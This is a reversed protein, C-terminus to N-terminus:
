KNRKAAKLADEYAHISDVMEQKLMKIEADLEKLEEADTTEKQEKSLDSIEGCYEDVIEYRGYEPSEYVEQAKEAAGEVDDAEQNEYHDVWRKVETYEDYYKWYESNTRRAKANEDGSKLVRSAMLMNRWDFEQEGAATQAMKGLKNVATVYGGFTGEFLHEIKSPNFNLWGRRIDDGGTAENCAKSFDVLWQATKKNAKTWEPDLKNWDNDKYVPRGTWDKNIFYAEVLPKVVSPIVASLGGEGEFLDIPAFKSLQGAIAEMLEQKTYRERGLMVNATLEGLGYIAQMEPGLPICFFTHTFPIKFCLNSRRVYEPLNLYDEDDGGFGGMLVGLLYIAAHYGVAKATHHKYLRAFNTTGQIAANWFIYGSRGAGSLFGAINGLLSQGTKGMMASGAGKKNFNVSVEKADMVSREITRGMQRSTIFAAFRACNEVSRNIEDLKDGVLDWAVAVPIQGAKGKMYKKILKKQKEIDKVVTYGTEGGNMMFQYFMEEMKDNMDLTGSNYKQLLRFLTGPNCKVFNKNFKIAYNPNERVWMTSNAYMADRLFNSLVFEPNRTTYFASMQRNVWGATNDILKGIANTDNNNPNTLGNLAQAVRPNGNVTIVYDKGGMKVHVQHENMNEKLVVYPIDVADKGKKYHLPDNKALQEMQEEFQETKQLVEDASDNDDIKATVAEWQGTIDNFKLWLKNVSVADSPHNMAFKLFKQKMMNRNGQVIASDAMNAITALPDDAVTKRGKAKKLAPSFGGSSDHTLYAYVEDSTTADFGRLPIYYDYMGDIEQYLSRSLLGSEYTKKLTAKTCTNTRAWLEDTNYKKEFADVLAQADNEAVALDDIEMLGTIGGYDRMRNKEYQAQEFDAMRQKVDDLDDIAKQDLPDANVAAEAKSLEEGFKERAKQQAARRAMVENRELGHKAMMYRTVEERSSGQKVLDHVANLLPKFLMKGYLEQEAHNKSSLANEAMYANEFDAIVGGTAKVIMEMLRRLSLMSDQVAERFQYTSSEILRDYRDRVIAKDREDMASGDRYLLGDGKPAAKAKGAAEDEAAKEYNGVGLEQKMLESRAAKVIGHEDSLNEYSQWLIYRLDNDSLSGNLKVGAKRLMDLFLDKIKQLWNRKGEFDTDEALGALYEETAVRFDWGHRKAMEAIQRRIGEDANRYVNELFKNFDEGFMKRLGYHAVGEHLVTKVVDATGSHNPLVIVIEGTKPDFWGKANAKKGTLGDLSDMVKVKLGLKKAIREVKKTAASMWKRMPTGDESQLPKAYGAEERREKFKEKAYQQADMGQSEMEAKRKAYMEKYAEIDANQGNEHIAALLNKDDFNIDRSVYGDLEMVKDSEDRAEAMREFPFEDAMKRLGEEDLGMEKLAAEDVVKGSRRPLWTGGAAENLQRAEADTLARKINYAGCIIMAPVDPNANTRYKYYGNYPIYPLGAQDHEYKGNSNFGYSWADLQYDVDASYEVEFFVINDQMVSRAAGKEAGEPTVAFQSANPYDALHKGPRWALPSSKTRKGEKDISNNQVKIRGTTKTTVLSGDANRALVGTDANLNTLPPAGVGADNIMKPQLSIRGTKADRMVCFAAYATKTKGTMPAERLSFRLDPDDGENEDTDRFLLGDGEDLNEDNEKATEFDEVVKAASLGDTLNSLGGVEESQESPLILIQDGERIAQEKILELNDDNVFHWHVIEVNDKNPSVELLVTRNKNEEDVTNVLVWNYPRKTKQNQGYLNANYLASKFIVRSQEPTVDNHRLRNREFINKKIVVPRGETGLANAVNVPIQPLEVNRTPNTFDEETLDDISTIKELKLTGDANLPNGQKDTNREHMMEASMEFGDVNRLAEVMKTYKKREAEDYLARVPMRGFQEATLKGLDKGTWKEFASKVGQWMERLWDMAKELWKKDTVGTVRSIIKENEAGTFRSICESFIKRDTAEEGLAELDRRVEEWMPSSKWLEMGRAYLKPNFTELVKMWIHTHEHMPTNANFVDENMVIRDGIAFGYVMGGGDRLMQARGTETEEDLRKDFDASPLVSVNNKGYINNLLSIISDREEQEISTYKTAANIEKMANEDLAVSTAMDSQATEEALHRGLIEKWNEPLKAKVAPQTVAKGDEDYMRFDTLVKYYNEHGTVGEYDFMPTMGNARCYDLYAQAAKRADGGNKRVLSNFQLVSDVIHLGISDDHLDRIVNGNKDLTHYGDDMKTAKDYGTLSKMIPSAGTAHYPLIMHIDPNGLAWKIFSVSPAVVVNGVHGRFARNHANEMATEVPFSEVSWAPVLEMNDKEYRADNEALAGRPVFGANDQLWKDYEKETLGLTHRHAESGRWVDVILSQNMKAGTRGFMEPMFPRKTYLQMPAHAGQLLLFQTYYDFFMTARADEYSFMRVGGRERMELQSYLKLYIDRPIGDLSFPTTDLLQKGRYQGSSLYEVIGTNGFKDYFATFESPSMFWEYNMNGRLMDSGLMLTAIKKISDAKIGEGTKTTYNKVRELGKGEALEKLVSKQEATLETPEGMLKDELGAAERVANWIQEDRKSQKLIKRKAEVYCMVCPTLYGHNKLIKKVAEIQTVGLHGGKGAAVLADIVANTAEKKICNFSYDVSIYEGTDRIFRRNSAESNQALAFRPYQEMYAQMGDAVADAQAIMADAEEPELGADNVLADRMKEKDGKKWTEYNLEVEGDRRVVAPKGDVDFLTKGNLSEDADTKEESRSEGGEGFLFIQDKRSVDETESALSARREEPTMGMRKQVNRSEVEGSLSLYQDYASPKKGEEVGRDYLEMFDKADYKKTARLSKLIRSYDEGLSSVFDRQEDTTGDLIGFLTEEDAKGFKERVLKDFQVFRRDEESPDHFMEPSGGHEFGEIYQIAHQIEHVFIEDYPLSSNENVYITNTEDSYSGGVSADKNVFVVKVQKLEPYSKFLEDAHVYDALVKEDRSNYVDAVDQAKSSLEDLRKMDAEPLTEGAFVREWLADYEKSWPQRAITRELDADGKEVYEIDPIEYRWKKDAGREWGTAMKIAKADTGAEEMERAVALNDLRTTVEEAHDAASTGKEGVFQMRVKGDTKGFKRPDVGDLLDKMVRDAVEEANTYHIHLFDCVGKWFKQLAQRVNNLASVAEAKEFVSGEGEAIKRAEERLREAGRRGSYQAIVEDAIEDDTKLEPYLKKVENWVSTGKMLAVVNKWEKPNGAKLATAWLHAYEHVLTESTAIRPDYYIKGGVTFGYAEGDKTRFYRVKQEKVEGTETDTEVDPYSYTGGIDRTHLKVDADIVRINGAADRVINSGQLDSVVIEGNSFLTKEENSPKFGLKEMYEVREDVPLPTSNAFDVFPQRLFKVFKGDVEGYGLIEYRSNPFVHNFLAVADVDPRHKKLHDKGKSVKIVHNGDKELYVTSDKGKGISTEDVDFDTVSTHWNGTAIAWAKLLERKKEEIRRKGEPGVRGNKPVASECIRSFLADVASTREGKRMGRGVESPLRKSLPRYYENYPTVNDIYDNILQLTVDDFEGSLVKEYLEKRQEAVKRLREKRAMREQEETNGSVMANAGDVDHWMRNRREAEESHHSAASLKAVGNAEDLVSQGEESGIVDLGSAQMAEDLADRLVQEEHTVPVVGTSKQERVKENDADKESSKESKEQKTGSTKTVKGDSSTDLASINETDAPHQKEAHSITTSGDVSLNKESANSGQTPLLDPVGDQHEALHWDSSNPLLAKRIYFVNSELLKKEVANKNMYHSSISVELGDQKVTISAYFKAKEGKRNFTKVFVYSSAREPKGDKSTSKEEIIIDPNKLTPGVMGFENARNKDFFKTVQHDGMKVRGIPTDTSNNEDFTEAWSEATLPKESADEASSEMRSLLGKAQEKNLRIGKRRTEEDVGESQLLNTGATDTGEATETSGQSGSGATGTQENGTGRKADTAKRKDQKEETGYNLLSKVENIIEEKTPVKGTFMDMQGSAAEKARGNYTTLTKKPLTTRNDNLVDALMLVAANRYDAVTEGEEFPFLNLQRAYGSVREGAKIGGNKRAQYVLDIAAALEEELSFGNELAVNNSIEALATIISQRMSKTETAMRVADPNKEFAKGILLNEITEKGAASLVDGDWMEALQVGSIAGCKQLDSIVSATAEKDAYFDGLTDFQNITRTTRGFTADDVVKGLKVAQETKSQGKMEQQNFKAFTEATYPMAADPVFVVRPHEMGEVQEKTFGFQAPYEKLYDIYAGDTNQAAALEGAMTRGNGSLVVGDGSVIVPNQVARSDYQNSHERTIRQADADREYDRDNVSGGNEDVPFGESKAFGKNVDHSATAAGSEVLVYHGSIKEGNAITIENRAGDVKKASEWKDKIGPAVNNVGLAAQEEAKRQQEAQYAKEEEIAKDTLEAQRQRSEEMRQAVAKDHEAAVQQWYEATANAANVQRQWEATEKNFKAISTGMKPKKKALKEAEKQASKLNNDVFVKATEEDLGAEKYIYDHARTPTAKAFDPEADEGEGVMPMPEAVATAQEGSDETEAATAAPTEAAATEAAVGTPQEVPQAALQEAVQEVSNEAPQEAAQETTGETKETTQETAGEAQAEQAGNEQEASIPEAKEKPKTIEDLQERTYLNIRYGNVPQDTFVEILGDANESATVTGRVANGEDDYITIDDDLNYAPRAAEQEEEQKEEAEQAAKEAEYTQLKALAARDSMGQLAEKSVTDKSTGNWAVNVTGDGNDSLIQVNSGAGDEDLVWYVDDKAFPLVGDIVNAREAAYTFRVIEESKKKEEMPDVAEDISLVESPSAWELQGTEADRILISESSGQIDVGTGDDYPKLEGDVVYVKRDDQKMVAPHIMGTGGNTREDVMANSRNVQEEIDDRVRDIMGDYTAKANLYEVVLKKQEEDLTESIIKTQEVPNEAKDILELVDPAKEEMQQRKFDMMNKADNMDTPEDLDYGNDYSNEADEQVPDNTRNDKKRKADAQLMGRYTEVTKAYTLAAKKQEETLSGDLMMGALAQKGDEETGFALTNRIAGWKDQDAWAASAADDAATMAQKARYKPTRYGATKMASFFGGMLSVGLFTDINQDLNFVGTGEAADMTMDGVIISNMVNGAVEEAYEGFVGNWKAQQEFDSVIKAADSTQINDILDRVKDVGLQVMDPMKDYVKGAAKGAWKGAWEGVPRFYEGFMESYNEISTDAFSKGLATPLSEGETHGGYVTNGNEDTDLLIDGNMREMAGAAVRASGTTAAMTMSGALDGAVRGTVQMAKRKLYKEGGKKIAEKGFRKLAYRVMKNEAAHGAGAAPNICMELMFPISEATVQGAKYGRGVQSGFYADTALKVAMADLMTQESQTLEKGEDAKDLATKLMAADHADSLGSDWTRPDFLKQGFGRVAGGAFSSELWKGLTGEQANHDAEDITRQAEKLTSKAVELNHVDSTLKEGEKSLDSEGYNQSRRVPIHTDAPSDTGAEKINQWAGAWFGKEQADELRQVRRRSIEDHAAALQKDIDDAMSSVQERNQEVASMSNDQYQRELENHIGVAEKTKKDEASHPKGYVDMYAAKPKGSGDFVVTQELEGNDDKKLVPPLANEAEDAAVAKGLMSDKWKDEGHWKGENKNGDHASQSKPAGKPETDKRNLATMDAMMLGMGNAPMSATTLSPSGTSPGTSPGTPKATSAGKAVGKQQPKTEAADKTPAAYIMGSFSDYDKGIDTYGSSRLAEYVKKRNQEDQMKQEFDQEDGIDTYGESKLTSYVMHLNKKRRDDAM